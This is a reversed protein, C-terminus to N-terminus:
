AHVESKWVGALALRERRKRPYLADVLASYEHYGRQPFCRCCAPESMLDRYLPCGCKPCPEGQTLGREALEHPISPTEPQKTCTEGSSFGTLAGSPSRQETVTEKPTAIVQQQCVTATSQSCRSARSKRVEWYYSWGAPTMIQQVWAPLQIDNKAASEMAARAEALLDRAAQRMV